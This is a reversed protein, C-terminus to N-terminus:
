KYDRIAVVTFIESLSQTITVSPHSQLNLEKRIKNEFDKRRKRVTEIYKKYEDITKYCFRDNIPESLIAENMTEDFLRIILTTVLYNNDIFQSQSIIEIEKHM